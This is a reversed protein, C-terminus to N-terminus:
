AVFGDALLDAYLEDDTVDDVPNLKLNKAIVLEDIAIAYGLKVQPNRARKMKASIEDFIADIQEANITKIYSKFEQLNMKQGQPQTAGIVSYQACRECM